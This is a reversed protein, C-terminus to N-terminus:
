SFTEVMLDHIFMADPLLDLLGYRIVDLEEGGLRWCPTYRSQMAKVEFLVGCKVM